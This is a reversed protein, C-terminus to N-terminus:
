KESNFLFYIMFYEQFNQNSFSVSLQRKIAPPTSQPKVPRTMVPPVIGAQTRSGGLNRPLTQSRIAAPAGVTKRPTIALKRGLASFNFCHITHIEVNEFLSVHM